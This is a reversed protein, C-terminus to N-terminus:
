FVYILYANFFLNVYPAKSFAILLIVTIVFLPVRYRRVWFWRLIPKEIAKLSSRNIKKFAKM